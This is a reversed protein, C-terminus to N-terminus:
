HTPHLVVSNVYPSKEFTEEFMKDVFFSKFKALKSKEDETLPSQESNRRVIPELFNRFDDSSMQFSSSFERRLFPRITAFALEMKRLENNLGTVDQSQSREVATQFSQIVASYGNSRNSFSVEYKKLREQSNLEHNKVEEQSKISLYQIYSSAVIAVIATIVSLVPIVGEKLWKWRSEQSELDAKRLREIHQLGWEILEIPSKEANRKVRFQSRFVHQSGIAEIAADRESEPLRKIWASVQIGQLMSEKWADITSIPAGQRFLESRRRILQELPYENILSLRDRISEYTMLPNEDNCSLVWVASLIGAEETTM